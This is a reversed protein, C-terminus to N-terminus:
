NWLPSLADEEGGALPKGKETQAQLKRILQEKTDKAGPYHLLEMKGWYRILTDLEAPNGFAGSQLGALTESWMASRNNALTSAADVGFLFDDHYYWNGEGDRRLFDLRNWPIYKTEGDPMRRRVFEPQEGYALLFRFMLEFLEGYAAQKMVRKSELRGATQAAAFQKAVGSVATADNRGQYSDTLGLIQRSAQYTYELYTLDKSIDPQITLVDIMSRQNPSDLEVIKLEEDTRRIHLQKPLTVISGGKGIKEEIRTCVKKIANQQDRIKDVDSDGLLRGYVSVNRRLVIPYRGPRYHPIRTPEVSPLGDEGFVIDGREDRRVSVTSLVSGDSLVTDTELEFSEEAERQAQESGCVPCVADMVAGCQACRKVLHAQYDPLHELLTDDVFRIRGIRGTEDRYYGTVMTVLEDETEAGWESVGRPLDSQAHDLDVGFIRRISQKTQPQEIMLYDMQEIETVGPQPLFQRPHCLTVSLRGDGFGDAKWEVHFFDGGQIPTTREDLDNLQEFPIRDLEERLRDEILAALLEDKESRATVKPQPVTSDVLSEVCEAVINRVVTAPAGGSLVLEGSANVRDIERSGRYLAEREDMRVREEAAAAKAKEYRGQWLALLEEEKEQKGHSPAKKGAGKKKLM